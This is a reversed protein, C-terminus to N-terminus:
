VEKNKNKPIFLHGKKGYTGAYIYDDINLKSSRLLEAFTKYNAPRETLKYHKPEEDNTYIYEFILSLLKEKREKMKIAKKINPIELIYEDCENCFLKAYILEDKKILINNIIFNRNRSNRKVYGIIRYQWHNIKILGRGEGVIYQHLETVIAVADNDVPNDKEHYLHVPLYGTYNIIVNILSQNTTSWVVANTQITTM